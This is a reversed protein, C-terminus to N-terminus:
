RSLELVPSTGFLNLPEILGQPKLGGVEDYAGHVSERFGPDGEPFVRGARWPDHVYLTGSQRFFTITHRYGANEAHPQNSIIVTRTKTYIFYKNALYRMGDRGTFTIRFSVAKKGGMDEVQATGIEINSAGAASLGKRQADGLLAGLGEIEGELTSWQIIEEQSSEPPLITMM